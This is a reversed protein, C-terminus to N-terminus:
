NKESDGAPIATATEGKALEISSDDSFTIQSLWYEFAM